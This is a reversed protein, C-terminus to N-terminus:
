KPKIGRPRGGTPRGKKKKADGGGERSAQARSQRIRAVDDDLRELDANARKTHERWLREGEKSTQVPKTKPRLPEELLPSGKPKSSTASTDEGTDNIPQQPLQAPPVSADTPN